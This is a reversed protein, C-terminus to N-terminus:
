TFYASNGGKYELVINKSTPTVVREYDEYFYTTKAM